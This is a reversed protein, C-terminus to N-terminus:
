TQLLRLGPLDLVQNLLITVQNPTLTTSQLSNPMPEDEVPALESSHPLVVVVGFTEATQAALPRFDFGTVKNAVLGRTDQQKMGKTGGIGQLQRSREDPGATLGGTQFKDTKILPQPFGSGTLPKLRNRSDRYVYIRRM